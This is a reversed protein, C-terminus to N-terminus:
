SSKIAHALTLVDIREAGGRLLVKSCENVTAGTTYVDDVLLVSKGLLEEKGIVHFTGKVGKEREAGSLNVQPITSKKKQLITKHSPIGTRRSLEKVLLLAQNFGRQRLRKPHLPVPILLDLSDPEWYRNLGEAMWEALFPTLHTKGEYKWRYIAEQLSGEFAGLARAMTFYKRHTMCAGCPHSDIEKSIFPIGCISCFPPVIWRIESLCDSCVGQQGEELFKECCPCQPPLFFQFLTSRFKMIRELRYGGRAPLGFIM